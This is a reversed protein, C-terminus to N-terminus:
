SSVMEPRALLTTHMHRKASACQMLMLRLCLALLVGAHADPAHVARAAGPMRQLM